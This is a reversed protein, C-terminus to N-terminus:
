ENGELEESEKQDRRYINNVVYVYGVKGLDETLRVTIKHFASGSEEEVKEVIGVDYGEPFIGSYGSTVITDGPTVKVHVPIAELSMFRPDKVPWVLSGFYRTKKLRVSVKSQAHLLSMVRSYNGTVNVVIGVLGNTGIVGSHEAVGHNTGRNLTIYNDPLSVSNNVVKAATYFYQQFYDRNGDTDSSDKLIINNFYSEELRNFLKENDEALAEARKPYHRYQMFSDKFDYMWGSIANSTADFILQQDKNFNVILSICIGQVLLFLFFPHYRVLLLILNRM